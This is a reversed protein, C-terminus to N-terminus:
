DKFVMGIFCFTIGKTSKSLNQLCGMNLYAFMKLTIHTFIKKGM